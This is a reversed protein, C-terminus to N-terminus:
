SGHWLVARLANFMQGTFALILGVGAGSVVCFLIDSWDEVLLDIM